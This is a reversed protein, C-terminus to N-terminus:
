TMLIDCLARGTAANVRLPTATGDVTSEGYAVPVRNDDRSKTPAVITGAAVTDIDLLVRGTAPDINMPIATGATSSEGQKAVVRNDDRATVPM